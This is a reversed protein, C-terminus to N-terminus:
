KGKQFLDFRRIKWNGNEQTLDYEVPASNGYADTVRGKVKAIVGDFAVNESSFTGHMALLHHSQVFLKFTPLPTSKQFDQSTYAYYAKSYDGEKLAELQEQIVQEMFLNQSSPLSSYQPSRESKPNQIPEEVRKFFPEDASIGDFIFLATACIFILFSNPTNRFKM